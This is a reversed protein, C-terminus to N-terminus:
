MRVLEGAHVGVPHDTVLGQAKFHDMIRQQVHTGPGREVILSVGHLAHIAGYHVHLDEVELM